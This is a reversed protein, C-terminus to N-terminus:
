HGRGGHQPTSQQHESKQPTTTTEGSKKVSVKGKIELDFIQKIPEFEVFFGHKFEHGLTSTDLAVVVEGKGGAKINQKETKDTLFPARLYIEEIKVDQSGKNLFPYHLTLVEGNKVFGIDIVKREFTIQTPKGKKDYYYEQFKNSLPQPADGPDYFWEGAVLKWRQYDPLPVQKTITPIFVNYTIEVVASKGGDELKLKNIKFGMVKGRAQLKFKERESEVVLAQAAAGQGMQAAKLFQTVRDQLKDLEPSKDSQASVPALLCNALLWFWLSLLQIGYIMKIAGM